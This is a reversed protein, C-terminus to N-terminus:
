IICLMIGAIIAMILHLHVLSYSCPAGGDMDMHMTPTPTLYVTTVPSATPATSPFSSPLLGLASTPNVTATTEPPEPNIIQITPTPTLYVTTVPSATPATSPFSSPLFELASTPNTEPPEPNIIQAVSDAFGQINVIEYVDM